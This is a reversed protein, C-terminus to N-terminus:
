LREKRLLWFELVIQALLVLSLIFFQADSLIPKM